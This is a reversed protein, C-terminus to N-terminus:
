TEKMHVPVLIKLGELMIGAVRIPVKAKSTLGGRAWSSILKLEDMPVGHERSALQRLAGLFTDPHFLDSLYLENQLLAGQNALDNWKQVQKAKSCIARIYNVPDEPGDWRRQWGGPTEQRLLSDALRSVDEDM